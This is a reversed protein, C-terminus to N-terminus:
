ARMLASKATHSVMVRVINTCSFVLSSKKRRGGGRFRSSVLARNEATSNNHSDDEGLTSDSGGGEGNVPSSTLTAQIRHSRTRRHVGERAAKGAEGGDGGYDLSGDGEDTDPPSTRTLKKAHGRIRRTSGVNGEGPGLGHSPSGNKPQAFM